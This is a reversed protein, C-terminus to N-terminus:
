PLVKRCKGDAGALALDASGYLTYALGLPNKKTRLLAQRAELLAEGAPTGALFSRVFTLAIETAVQEWVPVETGVVGGAGRGKVLTEIFPSLAEHSFGATRCGNLFVLPGREWRAGGEVDATSIMGEDGNAYPFVLQPIMGSADEKGRIAHCYFYVFDLLADALNDVVADREDAVIRTAGIGPEACLSAVAKDHEEALDLTRNFAVSVRSPPTVPICDHVPAATEGPALHRPPVEIVHNFGWLHLPCAVTEPLVGPWGEAARVKLNDPHLVCELHEGCRRPAGEPLLPALCADHEVPQGQFTRRGPSYPRDYVLAWPVSKKLLLHGVRIVGRGGELDECIKATAGSAIRSFLEWGNAALSKLAEVLQPDEGANVVGGAAFGYSKTGPAFSIQDLTSRAREVYQKLDTDTGVVFTDAGKITVVSEGDLDNAFISLTRPPANLMDETSAAAAYELRAMYGAAGVAEPDIGLVRALGTADGQGAVAGVRFSQLLCQDVYVCFRLRVPGERRPEVVFAIDDSAGKKPLWLQQVESGVVDFDLGTVGIELWRGEVGPGWHFHEELLASAGFVKVAENLPGIQISLHCREGPALRAGDQEIRVLEGGKSRSFWSNVFRPGDVEPAEVPRAEMKAVGRARALSRGVPVVGGGEHDRFRLEVDGSVGERLIEGVAGEEHPIAYRVLEALQFAVTSVRLADERGAGAFLAVNQPEYDRLVAEDLARDHVLSGYFSYMDFESEDVVAVAPGGRAVIRHALRRALPLDGAECAFTVLRTLWTSSLRLLWGLTAPEKPSAASLVGRRRWPGEFAFHLIEASPWKRHKRFPVVDGLELAQWEFASRADAEDFRDFMDRVVQVISESGRGVAAIRVPLTLPRIAVHPRVHSERVIAAPVGARAVVEGMTEEWPLAALEEERVDLVLRAVPIDRTEHARECLATWLKQLHVDLDGPEVRGGRFWLIPDDDEGRRVEVLLDGRLLGQQIM